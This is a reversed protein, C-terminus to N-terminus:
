GANSWHIFPFGTLIKRNQRTHFPISAPNAPSQDLSGNFGKTWATVPCTIKTLANQWCKICMQQFMQVTLHKAHLYLHKHNSHSHRRIAHSYASFQITANSHSVSTHAIM